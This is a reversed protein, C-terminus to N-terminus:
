VSNEEEDMDESEQNIIEEAEERSNVPILQGQGVVYLGDSRSEIRLPGSTDFEMGDSFKLTMKM